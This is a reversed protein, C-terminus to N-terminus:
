KSTLGHSSLKNGRGKPEQESQSGLRLGRAMLPYTDPFGFIENERRSHGDLNEIGFEAARGELHIRRKARLQEVFLM